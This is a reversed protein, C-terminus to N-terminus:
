LQTHKHTLKHIQASRRIEWNKKIQEKAISANLPKSSEALKCEFTGVFQKNTKAFCVSFFFYYDNNGIVIVDDDHVAAVVVDFIVRINLILQQNDTNWMVVPETSRPIKKKRSSLSRWLVLAM